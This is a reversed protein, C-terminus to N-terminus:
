RRPAATALGGALLGLGRAERGFTIVSHASPRIRSSPVHSGFFFYSAAACAGGRVRDLGFAFVALM